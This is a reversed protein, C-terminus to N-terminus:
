ISFLLKCNKKMMDVCNHLGAPGCFFTCLMQVHSYQHSAAGCMLNVLLHM